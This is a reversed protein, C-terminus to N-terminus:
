DNIEGIKLREIVSNVLATGKDNKSFIFYLFLLVLYVMAGFVVKIVLTMVGSTKIPLMYLLVFMILGMGIIPIYSKIFDIIPLDNKANWTQYVCIIVEAILTGFAAGIAGCRPILCLNIAINVINSVVGSKLLVLDKNHPLLYQTRIVSAFSMFISSPLLILYLFVCEDYGAGYFIPIFEKSVGMIGFSIAGSLVASFVLSMHILERNDKGIKELMNSTRPLMVTGLSVIMMNPISIIRESFEYFGLQIKEPDYIGLMIKDATKFIGVSLVTLFLWMNPKIHRVVDNISPKVIDIRKKIIPLCILQSVLNGLLMIISYLVLDEKSKVFSFILVTTTCKVAFNRLAISKFLELGYMCWTLDFITAFVNIYFLLAFKKEDFVFVICVIYVISVLLGMFLQLAYISCFMYSLKDRDERVRAIERNGYNELGLLIFMMFYSSITYHYSYEGMGASGLVRALYPTTVIPVFLLLLQFSTNYVYNKILSKM